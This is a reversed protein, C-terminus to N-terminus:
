MIKKREVFWFILKVRFEECIIFVSMDRFLDIISNFFKVFNINNDSIKIMIDFFIGVGTSKQNKWLGFM